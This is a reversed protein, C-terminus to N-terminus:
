GSIYAHLTGIRVFSFNLEESMWENKELKIMILLNTKITDYLKTVDLEAKYRKFSSFYCCCYNLCCHCSNKKLDLHQVLDMNCEDMPFDLLQTNCRLQFSTSIAMFPRLPPFMNKCGLKKQNTLPDNRIRFYSSRLKTAHLLHLM